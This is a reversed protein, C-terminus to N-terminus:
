KVVNLKVVEADVKVFYTGNAFNTVNITQNAAANEISAVVQGLSNVVVIDKGEANAITVISNTPNPYVAITEAINEEAASVLAITVDDILLKFEDSCNFHRFAVYITQGAYNSLDAHKEKWTGQAKNHSGGDADMTEEWILTFASPDTTTTSVYVGYHEAAYDADQAAAYFSVSAPSGEPLAIAPTIIWNDPHLATANAYSESIIANVSANHGYGEALAESSNRWNYGDGDADIVSWCVGIGSEFDETYPFESIPDCSIANLTITMSNDSDDGDAVGNPESVTVVITHAGATELVVPTAHTFNHTGDSAVNIGSVTYEVAAGGDVTYAVKYSTLAIGNNAVVGSININQGTQVTSGTAPTVSTLAIEATTPAAVISFDDVFFYYADDSICKIAVKITQNAYASLDVTVNDWEPMLSSTQAAERVLTESGNAIVYVEFTEPYPTGQFAYHAVKFKANMNEGIVLEPSILYDEQVSAYTLYMALNGANDTQVLTFTTGDDNADVVSWCYISTSENSFTESWPTEYAHCEYGYAVLAVTANEAGTSSLTLTGTQDGTATPSFRVYLTGGDATLTATTGFTTNDSSVEFPAAVTATIGETLNQATVAVEMAASSTNIEAAFSLSSPNVMIIPETTIIEVSVNDGEDGMAVRFVYTAGALFTYDDARGNGAIWMRDGATPNTVCWDYTGAPITIAISDSNVMNTTSLAGDANEPIKYEFQSYIDASVDGGSTLPGNAPLITGYATADADLLLQYGSGDGWVDGAVLAITAQGDRQNRAINTKQKASQSTFAPKVSAKGYVGTLNRNQAFGMAAIFLAIM